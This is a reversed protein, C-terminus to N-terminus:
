RNVGRRDMLGETPSIPDLLDASNNRVNGVARDVEYVEWTSAVDLAQDGVAEVLGQAEEKELKEPSLWTDMVDASMPLPMRDHLGALQDLVGGRGAEPSPGTLITCSLVWPADEPGKPDRWWEYLGAFTMLGGDAPRIAHPRKEDGEKLWEYYADAPVACRRARVASRFMPKEVVTESRANFARGGIKSDKAWIPILGWHATHLEKSAAGDDLEREVVVPVTTTPAVNYSERVEVDDPIELDLARALDGTARAIVYRGCM